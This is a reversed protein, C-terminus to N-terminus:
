FEEKAQGMKKKKQRNGGMKQLIKVFEIDGQISDFGIGNVRLTKGGIAGAALFYSASSADGEIIIEKPNRLIQKAPIFFEGSCIKKPM